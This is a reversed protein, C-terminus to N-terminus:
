TEERLSGLLAKFGFQMTIKTKDDDRRYVKCTNVGRFYNAHEIEEIFQGFGIFGGELKLGINLFQPKSSDPIITNLYLLEEVPPTIEVVDVNKRSAELRLADFLRLVDNKTYLKSNLDAKLSLLNHHREIFRPLESITNQFDALQSEAKKIETTMRDHDKQYPVYVGFFWLSALIVLTASYTLVTRSM